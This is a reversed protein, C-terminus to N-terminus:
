SNGDFPRLLGAKELQGCLRSPLRAELLIGETFSQRRFVKGQAYIQELWSQQSVPIWITAQRMFGQLADAVRDLLAGIGEARLASVQVGQPFRRRLATRGDSDVRDIQNFVWLTPQQDAKLSTLVEEVAAQRQALLPHAADIVHLLLHSRTVEELTAKFAEVLHHPLRHIFGVTDSLIVRQRNPLTLRRSIPDLTTFLRDESRAGAQTMANLLTSKGANTYGILAVTPVAGEQRHRRVVERRAHVRELEKKLRSIRLRIRRRDVELKQEGPGRTGIGGGLRSLLIGRGALRPLLYELQALEVQVKGEQSHARQAFIDLILQTRDIVKLGLLDELNRQQAFDLDEGFVVVEAGLSRCREHIEQVKGKGILLDRSPRQRRVFMQGLVQVGSSRTLAGLEAM